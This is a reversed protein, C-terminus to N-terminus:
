DDTFYSEAPLQDARELIPAAFGVPPRDDVPADAELAVAISAVTRLLARVERLTLPADTRVEVDGVRVRTM